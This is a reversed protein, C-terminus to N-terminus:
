APISISIIRTQSPDKTWIYERLWVGSYYQLSLQYSFLLFETICFQIIVSPTADYKQFIKCFNILRCVLAIPIYTDKISQTANQTTYENYSM